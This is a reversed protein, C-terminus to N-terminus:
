SEVPLEVGEIHGGRSVKLLVSPGLPLQSQSLDTLESLFANMDPEQQRSLLKQLM